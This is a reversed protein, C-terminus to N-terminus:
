GTVLVDQHTKGGHAIRYGTALLLTAMMYDNYVQVLSRKPNVVLGSAEEYAELFRSESLLGCTLFTKGDEALHGFARSTTWAIDPPSRSAGLGISGPRSAAITRPSCSTAWGTTRM